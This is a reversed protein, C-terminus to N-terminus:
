GMVLKLVELTIFLCLMLQLSVYFMFHKRTFFLM